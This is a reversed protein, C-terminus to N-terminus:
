RILKMLIIRDSIRQVDFVKEIWKEALLFGVGATGRDNGSWFLKYRSDKGKLMRASGGRWRTEQLCCLDVKRRSMTEVVEDARGRLTGVNLSAIRFNQPIESSSSRVLGRRARGKM